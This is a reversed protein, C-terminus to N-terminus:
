FLLLAHRDSDLLYGLMGQCGTVFPQYRIGTDDNQLISDEQNVRAHSGVNGAEQPVLQFPLVAERDPIKAQSMVVSVM